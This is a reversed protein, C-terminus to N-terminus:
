TLKMFQTSPYYFQLIRKYNWGDRVMERAGWQCLGIHHGYGRGQLIIKGARKRIGFCFSKVDKMLSYMKQGSISKTIGPGKLIVEQVLGAKDKKAVKVEHLKKNMRYLDHVLQEFESVDYEAHWSYIRCRKCHKCAYKRALYPADKFNFNAIYAPIIGGCCCDFMAIIPKNDYALFIGKTQEVAAKIVSCSHTGTYTQHENTNKIHYPHKNKRSRIVLAIVYSRSAIAFVKNVELPWGPWSESRLVSFVYEELAVCNILLTRAEERVVLFSGSHARDEFITGGEKPRICLRDHSCKKGNLYLTNGKAKIVLTNTKCLLKQQPQRPDWAFLGQKSSLQWSTDESAEDLLVRVICEKQKSNQESQNGEGVSQPSSKKLSKQQPIAQVSEPSKKRHRKGWKAALPMCVFVMFIFFFKSRYAM